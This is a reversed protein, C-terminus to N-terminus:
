FHQVDNEKKFENDKSNNKINIEIQKKEQDNGIEESASSNIIISSECVTKQM